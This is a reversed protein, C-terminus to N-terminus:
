RTTNEVAGTGPDGAAYMMGSESEVYVMVPYGVGARFIVKGQAM